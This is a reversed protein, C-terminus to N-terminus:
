EPTIICIPPVRILKKTKSNQTKKGFKGQISDLSRFVFYQIVAAAMTSIVLDIMRDQFFSYLKQM